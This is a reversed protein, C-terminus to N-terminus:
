YNTGEDIWIEIDLDTPAVTGVFIKKDVYTKNVLHTVATPALSQVIQGGGTMIDGGKKLYLPHDDDGLGTLAGHDTVGEGGGGSTVMGPAWNTGNFRLVEGDAAGGTVVDSLDDLAHTHGGLSYRIDGRTQDLYQPHDDDELGVLTGHDLPGGGGDTDQTFRVWVEKNKSVAGHAEVFETEIFWWTTNDVPPAAVRFRGWNAANDLQQFSILDGVALQILFNSVDIGSMTEESFAIVGTDTRVKGSGPDAMTVPVDYTWIFDTTSPHTHDNHAYQPHDDDELGSLDGHDIIGPTVEAFFGIWVPYSVDGGEFAIWVGSGAQVQPMQGVVCPFAWVSNSGTIVPISVYLRNLGSPDVADTIVGRYIGTLM